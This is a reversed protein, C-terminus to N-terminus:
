KPTKDDAPASPPPNTKEANGNTPAEGSKPEGPTADKNPAAPNADSTPPPETKYRDGDKESSNPDKQADKQMEKLLADFTEAASKTEGTAPANPDGANPLSIDNPSFAPGQGPTGPGMPAVPRPPQATALWDYTEKAEPKALRDAQQKAYKSYAGTVQGYQERAKELESQMEYVRALGLHARGTLRSDDSSQIVGQYASAAKNLADKAASRNSIYANSAMMVQGDAWTVDALQQMKTGQYEQATRHLAELNMPRSGLALNYSDWAENKRAASSGSLYSWIFLLAIFAVIGIAVKSVYPKYREIYVELKHAFVNTELKHREVSKM